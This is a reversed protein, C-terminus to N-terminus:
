KNQTEKEYIAINSDIEKNEISGLWNYYNKDVSLIFSLDYGKYQGFRLIYEGGTKQEIVKIKDKAGKLAEEIEADEITLDGDFMTELIKKNLSTKWRIQKETFKRKNKMKMLFDFEYEKFIDKNKLCELLSANANATIDEKLRNLGSFASSMDIGVFNKVCVNGVYMKENNKNNVLHCRNVIPHGCPCHTPKQDIFDVYWEKRAEGWDKSISKKLIAQILKERDVKEELEKM